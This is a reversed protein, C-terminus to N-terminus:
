SISASPNAASVSCRIRICAGRMRARPSTSGKTAARPGSHVAANTRPVVCNM